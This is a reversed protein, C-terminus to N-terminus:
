HWAGPVYFLSSLVLICAIANGLNELLFPKSSEELSHFCRNPAMSNPVASVKTDNLIIIM